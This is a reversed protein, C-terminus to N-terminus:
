GAAGAKSFRNGLRRLLARLEPPDVRDIDADMAALMLIVWNLDDVDMAIGTLGPGHETATGWTGLHQQVVAVPAAVVVEVHYTAPLAALRQSIFTAADPAPLPRPGFRRKTVHTATVRDLRFTRWDDRDLDWAVLYWRRGMPVVQLPEVTREGSRGDAGRYHFRTRESDRCARALDTLVDLPLDAMPGRPEEMGGIMAELDKKSQLPLIDILKTLAGVAADSIGAIPQGAAHRLGVAIAVAEASNMLLPPLRAGPGLRYGGDVGREAVVPYGLSRLRDVDRRLTRASVELLTALEDGNWRQRSQLLTLLELMREGTGAM